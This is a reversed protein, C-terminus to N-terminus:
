FSWSSSPVLIKEPRQLLATSPPWTSALPCLADQFLRSSGPIRLVCECWLVHVCTVWCFSSLVAFLWEVYCNWFHSNNIIKLFKRADGGNRPLAGVSKISIDAHASLNHDTPNSFLWVTKDKKGIVKWTRSKNLTGGCQLMLIAAMSGLSLPWIM